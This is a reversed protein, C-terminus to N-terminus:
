STSDQGYGKGDAEDTDIAGDLDRNDDQTSTTDSWSDDDGSNGTLVAGISQVFSESQDLAVTPSESSPPMDQLSQESLKNIIANLFSTM